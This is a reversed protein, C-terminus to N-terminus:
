VAATGGRYRRWSRSLRHALPQVAAPQVRRDGLHDIRAEIEKRVELEGRQRHDVVLLARGLNRRHAAAQAGLADAAGLVV